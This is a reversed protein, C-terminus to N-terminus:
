IMCLMELLIYMRIVVISVSVHLEHSSLPCESTPQCWGGGAVDAIKKHKRLRVLSAVFMFISSMIGVAIPVGYYTGRARLKALLM